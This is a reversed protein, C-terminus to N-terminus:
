AEERHVRLRGIAFTYVHNEETASLPIVCTFRRGYIDSYTTRFEASGDWEGVQPGKPNSPPREEHLLSQGSLVMFHSCQLTWPAGLLEESVDVAPGSGVNRLTYTIRAPYYTLAREPLDVVLLPLHAGLVQERMEEAMRVSADAQKRTQKAYYAVAIFTLALVVASAAQVAGSNDNLWDIM